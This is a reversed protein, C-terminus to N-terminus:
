RALFIIEVGKGILLTSNKRRALSAIFDGPTRPNPHKKKMTKLAPPVFLFLKSPVGSAKAQPCQESLRGTRRMM